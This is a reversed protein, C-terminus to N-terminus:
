RNVSIGPVFGYFGKLFAPSRWLMISRTQFHIATGIVYAGGKKAEDPMIEPVPNAMPFVISREAMSAIMESSVINPASVGIFVDAGKLMDALTGQKNERNTLEAMEKQAPNTWEAGRYIAGQKDCLVIDGFNMQLLLKAVPM